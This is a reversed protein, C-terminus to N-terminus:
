IIIFKDKPYINGNRKMEKLKNEKLHKIQNGRCIHDGTIKLSLM